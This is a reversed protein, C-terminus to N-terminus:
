ALHAHVLVYVIHAPSLSLLPVEVISANLGLHIHDCNSAIHSFMHFVVVLEITYIM